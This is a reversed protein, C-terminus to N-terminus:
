ACGHEGSVTAGRPGAGPRLAEVATMLDLWGDVPRPPGGDVRLEGFVSQKTFTLDLSLRVQFTTTMGGGHVPAAPIPM